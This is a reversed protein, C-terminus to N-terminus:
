LVTNHGHTEDCKNPTVDTSVVEMTVRLQRPAHALRTVAGVVPVARGLPVAVRVGPLAELTQEVGLAELTLPAHLSVKSVRDAALATLAGTIDQSSVRM